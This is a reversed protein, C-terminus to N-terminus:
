QLKRPEVLSMDVAAWTGDDQEVVIAAVERDENMFVDTVTGAIGEEALTFRDGAYIV